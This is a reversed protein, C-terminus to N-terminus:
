TLPLVDRWVPRRDGAGAGLVATIRVDLLGAITADIEGVAIPASESFAAREDGRSPADTLV